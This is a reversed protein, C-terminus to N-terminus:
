NVFGGRMGSPLIVSGGGGGGAGDDFSGVILSFNVRNKNSNTAAFAGTNRTVEYCNAGLSMTKQHNSSIMTKNTVALNAAGPKVALAVPTNAAWSIPTPFLVIFNRGNTATGLQNADISLTALATPTGLPDGYLVLDFDITPTLGSIQAGYIKSPAAAQFLNGGEKTAGSSNMTLTGTSASTSYVFSGIFFGITGDHYTIVCNPTNGQVAYAGGTFAGEFPRTASSALAMARVKVNDVAVADETVMQVAFAVLDGHAITKSGLTPLGTEHWTTSAIGHADTGIWQKYCDFTVADSVNVPRAVPGVGSDIAAVGIKLLTGVGTFAIGAGPLFGFSSSGGTDVTHSGLDENYVHGIFYCCELAADLTIDASTGTTNDRVGLGCIGGVATFAAGGLDVQTM